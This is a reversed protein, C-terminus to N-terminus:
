LGQGRCQLNVGPKWDVMKQMEQAGETSIGAVSTALNEKGFLASSFDMTGMRSLPMKELNQKIWAQEACNGGVLKKSQVLFVSNVANAKARVTVKAGV